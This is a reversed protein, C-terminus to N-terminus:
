SSVPRDLTSTSSDSISGNLESSPVLLFPSRLKLM